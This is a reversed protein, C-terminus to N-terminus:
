DKKNEKLLKQLESNLQMANQYHLALKKHEQKLLFLLNRFQLDFLIFRNTMKRNVLDSYTLMYPLLKNEKFLLYNKFTCKLKECNNSYELYITKQLNNTCYPEILNNSLTAVAFETEALKFYFPILSDLPIQFLSLKKLVSDTMSKESNILNLDNNFLLSDSNLIHLAMQKESFNSGYIQKNSQIKNEYVWLAAIVGAFVIILEAFAVRFSFRQQNRM